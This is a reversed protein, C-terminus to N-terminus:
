PYEWSSVKRGKKKRRPHHPHSPLLLLLLFPYPAPLAPTSIDREPRPQPRAHATAPTKAACLSAVKAAQNPPVAMAVPWDHGDGRVEPGSEGQSDDATCPTCRARTHLHVGLVVGGPIRTETTHISAHVPSEIDAIRSAPAKPNQVGTTKQSERVEAKQQRSIRSAGLDCECCVQGGGHCRAQSTSPVEFAIWFFREM